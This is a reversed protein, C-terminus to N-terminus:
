IQPFLMYAGGGTRSKASMARKRGKPADAPNSSLLPASLKRGHAPAQTPVSLSETPLDPFIEAVPSLVNEVQDTPSGLALGISAKRRHMASSPVEPAPASEVISHASRQGLDSEQTDRMSRGSHVLEPLSSSSSVSRHQLVTAAARALLVVSEQSETKSLTTGSASARSFGSSRYSATSSPGDVPSVPYPEYQTQIHLANHRDQDNSLLEDYLADQDMQTSFDTPILLSPSLTFGHSEKFSSAHSTSRVHAPRLLRPTRVEPSEVSDNSLPSLQPLDAASPVVLSPQVRRLSIPSTLQQNTPPLAKIDSMSPHGESKVTGDSNSGPEDIISSCRDWDYDCDAEAEHEYCYDIDDEWSEQSLQPIARPPSLAVGITPGEAGQLIYSTPTQPRQDNVFSTRSGISKQPSFSPVSKSHRLSGSTSSIRSRRTAIITEEEEPVDALQLGEFPSPLPWSDINPTRPTSIIQEVVIEESKDSRTIPRPPSIPLHFAKPKRFGSGTGPRELSTTLMPDFNGLLMSATRSSTRPPPPIPSRPPRPPPTRLSDHSKTRTLKQLTEFNAAEDNQNNQPRQPSTRPRSDWGSGTDSNLADSSFNKFHLDDAKIGKLQGHTPAQSARIASFESMLEMRSTRHLNPLQEHRTHTLHQFNYPRSITKKIGDDLSSASASFTGRRSGKKRDYYYDKASQSEGVLSPATSLSSSSRSGSDRKLTRSNRSFLGKGFIQISEPREGKKLPMSSSNSRRSSQRSLSPTDVPGSFPESIGSRFSPTASSSTYSRTRNTFASGRRMQETYARIHEPSPPGDISPKLSVPPPTPLQSSTPSPLSENSPRSRHLSPSSTARNLLGFM